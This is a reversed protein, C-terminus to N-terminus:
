IKWTLGRDPRGVRKKEFRVGVLATYQPTHFNVIVVNM